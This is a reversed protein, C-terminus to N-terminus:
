VKSVTVCIIPSILIELLYRGVTPKTYVFLNSYKRNIKQFSCNRSLLILLKLLVAILYLPRLHQVTSRMDEILNTKPLQTIM